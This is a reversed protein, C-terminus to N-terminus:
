VPSNSSSLAPRVQQLEIGSPDVEFDAQASAEEPDDKLSPAEEEKALKQCDAFMTSVMAVTCAHPHINPVRPPPPYTPLRPLPACASGVEGKSYGPVTIAVLLWGLYTQDADSDETADVKLSKLAPPPRKRDTHHM